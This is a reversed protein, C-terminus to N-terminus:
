WYKAKVYHTFLMSEYERTIAKEQDYNPSWEIQAKTLNVSVKRCSWDIEHIWDSYVIVKRGTLWNGTNIGIYRIIAGESDIIFDDVNGLYGDEAHIRYGTVENTSRLFPDDTSQQKKVAEERDRPIHTLHAVGTFAGPSWYHFWGYHNFLDIEMQRSVPKDLDIGPSREIQDKMLDVHLEREDEGFGDFAIPSILVKRGTLWNGTNVIFYRVLWSSEDFYCDEIKGAEGDTALVKNGIIKNLRYLM